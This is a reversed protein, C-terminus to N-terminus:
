VRRKRPLLEFLYSTVSPAQKLNNIKRDTRKRMAEKKLVGTKLRHRQRLVRAPIPEPKPADVGSGWIYVPSYPGITVGELRKWGVIHVWRHGYLIDVYARVNRKTIGLEGALDELALPQKKKFLTKVKEMTPNSERPATM